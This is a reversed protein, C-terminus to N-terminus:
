SDGFESYESISSAYDYLEKKFTFCNRHEKLRECALTCADPNGNLLKQLKKRKRKYLKKEINEIHVLIKVLWDQFKEESTEAAIEAVQSWFSQEFDVLKEFIGCILTELLQKQTSKITSEWSAILEESVFSIFPHKNLKLGDPYVDYCQCAELFSIHFHYTCSKVAASFM